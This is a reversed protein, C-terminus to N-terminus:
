IKKKSNLKKQTISLKKDRLGMLKM